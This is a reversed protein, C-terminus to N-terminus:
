GKELQIKLEENMRKFEALQKFIQKKFLRSIIGTLEWKQVFRVQSNTEDIIFHHTATFFWKGLIKQQASFSKNIEKAITTAKFKSDKGARNFIIVNFEKGIEIRDNNSMSLVSNWEHYRNFDTLVNWVKEGPQSLDISITYENKAM